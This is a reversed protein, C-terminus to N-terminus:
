QYNDFTCELLKSSASSPCLILNSAILNDKDDHGEVTCSHVHNDDTSKCSTKIRHVKPNHTELWEAAKVHAYGSFVATFSTSSKTQTHDWWMYGLTATVCFTCILTVTMVSLM